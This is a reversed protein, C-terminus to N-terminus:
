VATTSRQRLARVGPVLVSSLGSACHWLDSDTDAWWSGGVVMM